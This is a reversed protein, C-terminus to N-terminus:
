AKDGPAEGERGMNDKGDRLREKEKEIEVNVMEGYQRREVRRARIHEIGYALSVAMGALIIAVAIIDGIRIAIEIVGAALLGIGLGSMIEARDHACPKRKYIFEYIGLLGGVIIVWPIIDVIWDM